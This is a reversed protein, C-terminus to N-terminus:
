PGFQRRPWGAQKMIKPIADTDKMFIKCPVDLVNM